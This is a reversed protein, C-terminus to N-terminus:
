YEPIPTMDGSKPQMAPQQAAPQRAFFAEDKIDINGEDASANVLGEEDTNLHTTVGNPDDSQLALLLSDDLIDDRKM